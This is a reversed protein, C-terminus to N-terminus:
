VVANTPDNQEHADLYGPRLAVRDRYAGLPPPLAMGYMLAWDLCSVLLIDAATFHEGM